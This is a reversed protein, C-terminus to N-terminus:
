NVPLNFLPSFPLTDVCLYYNKALSSIDGISLIYSVSVMLEIIIHAITTYVIDTSSGLISVIIFQIVV